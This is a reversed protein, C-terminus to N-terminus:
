PPDVQLDVAFLEGANSLVYLRQGLAAPTASVGTGPNFLRVRRGSKVDLVLMGASNPVLALGRVVTPDGAPVGELPASWLQKGDGTALALVSSTTVALLMGSALQLRCAGPAKVQWITKGSAADLALVAGAYAAVYVRSGSIQPTSDVDAFDGAPSVNREWHVVGTKADLAAVTGDSYAAYLVGGAVAPGAVGRITFRGTSERRHHWKWAGTRADIAFVTDQLTAVYVLGDAVLPRSGMEERADYRWKQKGSTRELAYLRGDGSAAYVTDGDVLPAAEFPGSAKFDWLPSGDPYFAQLLGDRTGVVALGTAPDVGAGGLERPKWELLGPTVLPKHWAVSYLRDLGPSAVANAAMALAFLGALAM